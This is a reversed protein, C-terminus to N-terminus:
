LHQIKLTDPSVSVIQMRYTRQGTSGVRRLRILLVDDAELTWTGPIEEIGDAPGINYQIFSGDRVIAFGNRGRAPPFSFGRPRYVEITGQDEEFSHFWTKLLAQPVRPAPRATRVCAATVVLVVAAIAGLSLIRRLM